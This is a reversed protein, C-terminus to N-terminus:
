KLNSLVKEQAEYRMKHWRERADNVSKGESLDKLLNMTVVDESFWWSDNKLGLYYYELAERYIREKTKSSFTQVFEVGVVILGVILAIVVIGTVVIGVIQFFTDM